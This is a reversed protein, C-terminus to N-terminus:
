HRGELFEEYERVMADHAGASLVQAAAVSRRARELDAQRIAPVGREGRADMARLEEHSVGAADEDDDDDDDDDDDAEDSEAGGSEEGAREDEGGEGGGKRRARMERSLAGLAAERCLAALAAGSFRETRAALAELRV